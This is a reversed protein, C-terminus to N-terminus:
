VHVWVNGHQWVVGVEASPGSNLQARNMYSVLEHKMRKKEAQQRKKSKEFADVLGHNARRLDKVFRMLDETTDQPVFINHIQM